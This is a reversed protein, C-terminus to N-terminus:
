HRSINSTYATYPVVAKHPIPSWLIPVPHNNLDRLRGEVPEVPVCAQKGFFSPDLLSGLCLSLIYYITYLMYVLM